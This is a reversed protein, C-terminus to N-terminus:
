SHQAARSPSSVTLAYHSPNYSVKPTDEESCFTTNGVGLPRGRGRGGLARM